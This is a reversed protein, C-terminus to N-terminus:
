MAKYSRGTSTVATSAARSYPTLGAHNTVTFESSSIFLEQARKLAERSPDFSGSSRLGAQYTARIIEKSRESMRGGTLLLDLEDIVARPQTGLPVFTLNGDSTERRAALAGPARSQMEFNWGRCERPAGGGKYGLGKDCSTLGYRVLSVLGNLFSIINPSTSLEAEPSTM